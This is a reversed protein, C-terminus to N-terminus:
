NKQTNKHISPEVVRFRLNIHISIFMKLIRECPLGPWGCICQKQGLLLHLLSDTKTIIVLILRPNSVDAM